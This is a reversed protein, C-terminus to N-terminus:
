KAQSLNLTWTESRNILSAKSWVILISAGPWDKNRQQRSGLNNEFRKPPLIAASVGIPSYRWNDTNWDGKGLIRYLMQNMVQNIWTSWHGLSCSWRFSICVQWQCKSSQRKSIYFGVVCYSRIVFISFLMFLSWLVLHYGVFLILPLPLRPFMTAWSTGKCLQVHLSPFMKQTGSVFNTDAVSATRTPLCPFM